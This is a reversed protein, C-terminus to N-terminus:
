LVSDRGLGVLLHSSCDMGALVAVVAAAIRIRVRRRPAVRLLIPHRSLVKQDLERKWKVKRVHQAIAGGDERKSRTPVTPKGLATYEGNLRQEDGIKARPVARDSSHAGLTHQAGQSHV